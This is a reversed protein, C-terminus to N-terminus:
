RGDSVVSQEPGFSDDRDPPATKRMLVMSGPKSRTVEEHSRNLFELAHAKEEDVMQILAMASGSLARCDNLFQRLRIRQLATKDSFVLHVHNEEPTSRDLLWVNATETADFQRQLENHRNDLYRWFRSRLEKLEDEKGGAEIRKDWIVGTETSTGHKEGDVYRHPILKEMQEYGAEESANRLHGAAMSLTAYTFRGDMMFRAWSLYLSGRYPQQLYGPFQETRAEEQFHHDWLDYDYLTTFDLLTKDGLSENLWFLNEGIGQMPLLAENFLAHQADSFSERAADLEDENAAEIQFLLRLVIQQLRFWESAPLSVRYREQKEISWTFYEPEIQMMASRLIAGCEQAPNM